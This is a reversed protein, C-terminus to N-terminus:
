SPNADSHSPAGSAALPLALDLGIRAIEVLPQRYAEARTFWAVCDTSGDEEFVIEGGVVEAFYVMRIVHLHSEPYRFVHSNIKAIRTIEIDLGTEEKVERIAADEPSEGFEIGGGPLTWKGASGKVQNSIRCLLLKDEKLILAYSSIRVRQDIM